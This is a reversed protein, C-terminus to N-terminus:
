AASGGGFTAFSAVIRVVKVTLAAALAFAVFALVAGVQDLPLWANAGALYPVMADVAAPLSSTLWEPAGFDPMLLGMARAIGAFITVLLETIV